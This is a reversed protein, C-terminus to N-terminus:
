RAAIDLLRRAIESGVPPKATRSSASKASASGRMPRLTRQRARAITAAFALLVLAMLASAAVTSLAIVISVSSQRRREELLRDEERNMEGVVGRIRDMTAKGFNTRVIRQAAEFGEIRRTELTQRLDQLKQDVVPRLDALHRAQMSDDATLSAIQVLTDQIAATGRRYPELYAPDGRILFGRQGTEADTVSASLRDLASKVDYTHSVLRNIDHVRWVSFAGVGATVIVAAVAILTM